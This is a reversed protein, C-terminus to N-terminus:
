KSEETASFSFKRSVINDIARKKENFFRIVCANLPAECEDWVHEVGTVFAIQQAPRSPHKQWKGALEALKVAEENRYKM